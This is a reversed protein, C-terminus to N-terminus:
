KKRFLMAAIDDISNSSSNSYQYTFYSESGIRSDKKIDLKIKLFDIKRNIKGYDVIKEEDSGSYTINSRFKIYFYKNNNEDSEYIRYIYTTGYDAGIIVNHSIIAVPENNPVLTPAIKEIRKKHVYSIAILFCIIIVFVSICLRIYYSIGKKNNEKNM